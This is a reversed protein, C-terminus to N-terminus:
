RVRFDNGGMTEVTERWARSWYRLYTGHRQRIYRHSPFASGLLFAAGQPAPLRVAWAVRHRSMSSTRDWGLVAMRRMIRRPPRMDGTPEIMAEPVALSLATTVLDLLWELEASRFVERMRAHDTAHFLVVLDRWSALGLRGKWFDNFIHLAAIMTSYEPSAMQVTAGNLQVSDASALVDEVHVGAGLIWPPVHHHIDVNARGHLNVGERCYRDIWTWPPCSEEPYDFGEQMAMKLALRFERQPVLLDLDSYARNWGQPHFRAVAPGKIIVAHVGAEDLDRMLETTGFDAALARIQMQITVRRLEERMPSDGFRSSTDLIRLVVPALGERLIVDREAEYCSADAVVLPLGPVGAVLCSRTISGLGELPGKGLTM